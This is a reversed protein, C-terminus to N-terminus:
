YKRRHPLHGISGFHMALTYRCEDNEENGENSTEELECVTQTLKTMQLMWASSAAGVSEERLCLSSGVRVPCKM